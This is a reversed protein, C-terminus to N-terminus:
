LRPAQSRAKRGLARLEKGLAANGLGQEATAALLQLVSDLVGYGIAIQMDDPSSPKSIGFDIKSLAKPMQKKLADFRTLDVRSEVVAGLMESLVRKKSMTM